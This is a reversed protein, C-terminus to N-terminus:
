KRRRGRRGKGKIKEEFLTKTPLNHGIWNAKRRTITHINSRKEKVGHLVVEKRVHDTWIIKEM